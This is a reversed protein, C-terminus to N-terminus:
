LDPLRVLSKADYLSLKELMELHSLDSIIQLSICKEVKLRILTPPLEPLSELNMYGKLYLEQLRSFASMSILLPQLRKYDIQDDLEVMGMRLVELSLLKSFDDPLKEIMTYELNFHLLSGMRGMSTPLRVLKRCCSVDLKELKQLHGVGDPLEEIKTESVSLEVLHKLNGISMPLKNISECNNLILSKLSTIECISDPLEVLSMCNSLDLRQLCPFWSFFDISGSLDLCSSLILVKLKQFRKNKNQPKDSWAVSIVSSSLDLHVLEEHYFNIPLIKLPFRRWRFWRLRSLLHPFDGNFIKGGSLGDIFRLNPMKAFDEFSLDDICMDSSFLIGEVIQMGTGHQLVKLIEDHSWLRSRKAPDGHSDKSIIRRGMFQLQDHM